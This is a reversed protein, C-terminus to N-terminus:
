SCGHGHVPQPGAFLIAPHAPEITFTPLVLSGELIQSEAKDTGWDRAEMWMPPTGPFLWNGPCAGVAQEGKEEDGQAGRSHM